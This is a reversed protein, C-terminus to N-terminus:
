RQQCFELYRNLATKYKALTSKARKNNFKIIIKGISKKSHILRPSIDQDLLNSVSNLYSIYSKPSSAVKDNEGVGVQEIFNRYEDRFKIM